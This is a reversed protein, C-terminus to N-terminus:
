RLTAVRHTHTHTKSSLTHSSNHTKASQLSASPRTKAAIVVLLALTRIKVGARSSHRSEAGRGGDRGRERMGERGGEM